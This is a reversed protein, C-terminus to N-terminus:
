IRWKLATGKIIIVLANFILVAHLSFVGAVASWINVQRLKVALLLMVAVFSLRILWGIRMYSIAKSAPQEVSKRVRYCMLLYYVLSTGLGFLFGVILFKFGFCYMSLAVAAGWIIIEILTRKVEKYFEQM